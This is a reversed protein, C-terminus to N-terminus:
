KPLGAEMGHAKLVPLAAPSTLLKLFDRAPGVSKSASGVAAAFTNYFQLEQPVPGVLEAGPVLIVSATVVIMEAQGSPVAQAITDGPMPRLKSQMQEAIGLKQLM